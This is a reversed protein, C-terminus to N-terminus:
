PSACRSSSRFRCAPVPERLRRGSALPTGGGGARALALALIRDLLRPYPLGAARASAAFDERRALDPAANVEIIQAPGGAPLRLDLRAYGSLGLARYARTALRRIGAEAQPSLSRARGTRVGVRHRYADDWKARTTAIAASRAPLRAFSLEWVPLARPRANGIVGVTLERGDVYEEVIADTGVRRHVFAVRERMRTRDQVLSAQAIGLSAEEERSKVIRPFGLSRDDEAPAARPHLAFPPTPLGHYLLIQKALAKDKTVAIARADPGTAPMGLLELYAAVHPQLRGENRFEMLLNFVAHPRWSAISRRLPELDDSLGVFRVEHGARRLGGAVDWESRFADIERRSLGRLRAPPVLEEHCLVIVRRRRL